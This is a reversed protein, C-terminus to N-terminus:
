STCNKSQERELFPPYWDPLIEYGWLEDDPLFIQSWTRESSVVENIKLFYRWSKSVFVVFNSAKFHCHITLILLHVKQPRYFWISKQFTSCDLSYKLWFLIVICMEYLFYTEIICTYAVYNPLYDWFILFSQNFSYFNEEFLCSLFRNSFTLKKTFNM